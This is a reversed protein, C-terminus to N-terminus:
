WSYRLMASGGYTQAGQAFGGDFNVRMILQRAIRLEAGASALTSDKPIPAGNVVFNAGPLSEFAAGLSPDNVSDHAWALRARLILAMGAIIVPSDLRAGLETRVDTANRSAFNLGFGGASLSTESFGPTHFAQPQVAAYPTVGFNPLVANRYGAELRVGYSQADFNATLKDGLAPRTTTMWHNGFAFSGALYVKGFRTAGYAGTQFSDGRGGGLGSSLGWNLSAAGLAFGVLTDPSYHYDMGGAFGYTQANLNSSGATASGGTFQGGGYSAGWATWRRLSPEKEPALGMAQSGGTAGNGFRGDVFPDIMFGLFHTSLEFATREAGTAAEGDLQTLAAPSLGYFTAPIGNTANFFNTLANAVHQQNINLGSYQTFNTTLTLYVNNADYSLSDSSGSPLNVNTLGAFATGGLGGAASLITFQKSKSVYNGSTFVANVTGNLSAAGTVIVAAAAPPTVQILYLAGPQFALNGAIMLAGAPNAPNGPALRGGANIQTRGLAGAGTLSAGSAVTTLSSAAISGTVNLTGSLVNTPGTYTNAGSLVLTGAGSMDLTGPSGGDSIAGSLTQTTGLPPTFSPDGSISIPNAITFNAANLFSLTTGAAMSLSGTGLASNNGVVLVGASLTTGGSYTNAGTLTQMGTTQVLSGSGGIVGSFIGSANGLTLKSSGLTVAGGGSLSGISQNFGNLNLTAGTAVTFPSTPAFANTAGAQLTGANVNTPGLYINTGSLVLTGGGSMNLTGPAGGNSITGSLTQITGTPPTFSTNGSLTIPNAIMFNATNLFSLTTGPAMSLSNTGLASNNGVVLTGGALVTGGTYINSGTLVLTGAGSMGLAGAAGGNSITGSLTQITGSPPTFSTNGSLTIPNAIMFNATNLFSLTTGPAMSLSNTGLASNNGVVLTGGSLVTGGGYTFPADLTWTGSGQKILAGNFTTAGTVAVSYTQAGSGDLTLTTGTNASMDLAGHIASGTFLTVTNAYNAMTVGGTIAGSNIVTGGSGLYVALNNGSISGSNTVTGPATLYYVAYLSNSATISGANNLTGGGRLYVGYNSSSISRSNTVAGSGIIQVSIGNASTITGSSVVNGHGSVAIGFSGGTISGYNTLNALNSSNAIQVGYGLGQITAGANNVISTTNAFSVIGGGNAGGGGIGSIIGSNTVSNLTGNSSPVDYFVGNPGIISAGAGNALALTTARSVDVAGYIGSNTPPAGGGANTSLIAFGPSNAITVAGVLTGASPTTVVIGSSGTAGSITATNPNSSITANGATSTSVSITEGGAGVVTIVDAHVLTAAFGFLFATALTFNVRLRQM